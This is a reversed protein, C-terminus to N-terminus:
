RGDSRREAAIFHQGGDDSRLVITDMVYIRDANKPDVTLGSFYWGRNWIRSDSSVHTWHTGGDDSRYLGGEDRAGDVLAYVGTPAARLPPSGSADRRRRFGTAASGTGPIAGTTRSTFVAGPGSSPPYVSWPPRRTQWLAAYITDPAGPRFALDIAGTDPNEFLM